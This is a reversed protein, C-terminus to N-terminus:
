EGAKSNSTPHKKAGSRPEVLRLQGPLPRSPTARRAERAAARRRATREALLDELEERRELVLQAGVAYLDGIVARSAEILPEIVDAFDRFLRMWLSISPDADEDIIEFKWATPKEVIPSTKRIKTPASMEVPDSSRSLRSIVASNRSSKMTIVVVSLDLKRYTFYRLRPKYRRRQGIKEQCDM